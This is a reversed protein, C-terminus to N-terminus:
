SLDHNTAPIHEAEIPFAILRLASLAIIKALRYRLQRRQRRCTFIDRGQVTNVDTCEGSLRFETLLGCGPVAVATLVTAPPLIDTQSFATTVFFSQGFCFRVFQRDTDPFETRFLYQTDTQLLFAAVALKIRLQRLYDLLLPAVALQM